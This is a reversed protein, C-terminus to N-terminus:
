RYIITQTDTALEDGNLITHRSRKKVIV